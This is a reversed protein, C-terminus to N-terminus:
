AYARSPASLIALEEEALAREEDTSALARLVTPVDGHILSYTEAAGECANKVLVSFGFRRYLRGLIPNCTAFINAIETNRMLYLLALFLCGGGVPSTSVGPTSLDPTSGTSGPRNSQWVWTQM